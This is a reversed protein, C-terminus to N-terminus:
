LQSYSARLEVKITYMGRMAVLEDDGCRMQDEKEPM